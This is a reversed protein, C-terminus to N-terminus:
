TCTRHTCLWRLHTALILVEEILAALKQRLIELELVRVECQNSGAEPNM